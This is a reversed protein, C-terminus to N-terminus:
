RDEHAVRAWGRARLRGRGARRVFQFLDDDIERKNASLQIAHGNEVLRLFQLKGFSRSSFLRGVVAVESAEAELAEADRADFRQRVAAVPEWPGVRAPYTDVGAERLAALRARRAAREQESM